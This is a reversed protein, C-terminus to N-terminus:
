GAEARWRRKALASFATSWTSTWALGLAEVRSGRLESRKAADIVWSDSAGACDEGERRGKKGGEGGRKGEKEEERIEM